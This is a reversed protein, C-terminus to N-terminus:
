KQLQDSSRNWPYGKAEYESSYKDIQESFVKILADADFGVSSATKKWDDVFPEAAKNLQDRDADTLRYLSIKRETKGSSILGVSYENVGVVIEAFKNVLEKGAAMVATQQSKSLDDFVQKNMFMGYAGIQGWNLITYNDIVESWKFESIAYDYGQTCDILGTDLAQYAKYISLNVRTAGLEGFVKGYVGMGRVKKGAIDALSKIADGRCAINVASATYPGVYVLNKKALDKTIAPVTRMMYDAAQMSVWANSGGIPLDTLAYAVMKKQYYAAIVTGMDAIGDGVGEVAGTAKFLAGGWQVNLKLEGQSLESLRQGYWDLTPKITGRAPGPHSYTLTTEAIAVPSISASMALAAILKKTIKM